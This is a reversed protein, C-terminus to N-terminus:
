ASDRSTSRRREIGVSMKAKTMRETSPEAKGTRMKVM